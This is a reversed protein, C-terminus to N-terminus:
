AAKAAAEHADMSRNIGVLILNISKLTNSILTNYTVSSQKTIYHAARQSAEAMEKAGSMEPSYNTVATQIKKVTEKAWKSRQELSSVLSASSDKLLEALSKLHSLLQKIEDKNYPRTKVANVAESRSQNVRVWYGIAGLSHTLKAIGAPSSKYQDDLDLLKAENYVITIGGMLSNSEYTSIDLVDNYQYKGAVHPTAKSHVSSRVITEIIKLSGEVGEPTGTFHGFLHAYYVGDLHARNNGDDVFEGITDIYNKVAVIIKRPDGEAKDAIVIAPVAIEERATFDGEFEDFRKFAMEVRREVNGLTKTISAIFTQVNDWLKAILENVAAVIREIVARLRAARTESVEGDEQAPVLTETPEDTGALATNAVIQILNAENPTAEKIRDVVFHLDELCESIDLVREAEDMDTEAKVRANEAEAQALLEEEMSITPYSTSEAMIRALQKM